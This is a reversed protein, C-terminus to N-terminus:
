SLEAHLLCPFCGTIGHHDLRRRGVVRTGGFLVFAPMQWILNLVRFRLLLLLLLLMMVRLRNGYMRVESM